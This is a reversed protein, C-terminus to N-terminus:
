CNGILIQLEELLELLNMGMAMGNEILFFFEKVGYIMDLLTTKGTGNKGLLTLIYGDELEFSIDQMKFKRSRYGLGEVKIM